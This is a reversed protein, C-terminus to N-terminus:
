FIRLRLRKLKTEGRMKEFTNLINRRTAFQDVLLVPPSSAATTLELVLAMEKADADAGYDPFGRLERFLWGIIIVIGITAIVPIPIVEFLRKLLEM